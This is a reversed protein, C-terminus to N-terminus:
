GNALELYKDIYWKAKQIDELGNKDRHRWLYKFANGICFNMVAEKGQTELMADICEINGAKYHDPHDIANSM